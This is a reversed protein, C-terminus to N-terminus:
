LVSVSPTQPTARLVPRIWSFPQALQLKSAMMLSPQSSQVSTSPTGRISLRTFLNTAPNIIAIICRTHRYHHCSSLHFRCTLSVEILYTSRPYSALMPAAFQILQPSSIFEEEQQSECSSAHM